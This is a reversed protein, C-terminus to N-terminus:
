MRANLKVYEFICYSDGSTTSQMELRAGQLGNVIVLMQTVNARTGAVITSAPGIRMPVPFYLTDNLFGSATPFSMRMHYQQIYWYRMCTLLEDAYDPMEWRPAVGTNQPDLYLGVDYLEFVNGATAMGNTNSATAFLGAANWGAVGIFSPGSAITWTLNMGIGTDKLWTGTTDGPVIFTQETDTNAQGASITFNAIYNRNDAANGMRISYTGAPSKWGFRLVVQKATATGWRFDAIRLGEIPQQILLADTTTLTADAVTVTIRLRDASGNSTVSQIRQATMTGSTTFWMNFQDAALYGQTTGATNGNEQSHQMAGNVIRNRTQATVEAAGTVTHAANWDNPSVENPNGADVVPSVFSHYVTIPM